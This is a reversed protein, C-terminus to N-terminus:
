EVNGPIALRRFDAGDASKMRISLPTSQRRCRRRGLFPIWAVALLLCATPEPVAASSDLNASGSGSGSATIGFHSRWETYQAPTGASDRWVVYDAADVVGNGNFDGKLGVSLTLSTAGYDVLWELNSTSLAPLNQTAFTGSRGGTASLIQFTNGWAPAFSNILTTTLTGALSASGVANLRDFQGLSTGGLEIALTAGAQQTYNGSITTLGASATDGPTLTGGARNLNGTVTSVVLQGGTQNFSGQAIDLTTTKLKGSTLNVTGLNYTKLTNTVTVSGSSNINLTGQNGGAMFYGGVYVSDSNIWQSGSGTVTVTGNSGAYAGINTTKANM